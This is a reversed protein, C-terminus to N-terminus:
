CHAHYGFLGILLVGSAPARPSASKILHHSAGFDVVLDAASYGAAHHLGASDLTSHVEM